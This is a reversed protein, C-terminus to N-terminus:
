FSIVFRHPLSRRIIEVDCRLSKGDLLSEPMHSAAQHYNLTIMVPKKDHSEVAEVICHCVWADKFGNSTERESEQCTAGENAIEEGISHPRSEFLEEYTICLCAFDGAVFDLQRSKVYSFPLTFRAQVQEKGKNSKEWKSVM